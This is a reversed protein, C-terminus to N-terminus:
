TWSWICPRSVCARMGSAAFPQGVHAVRASSSPSPHTSRKQGLPVACVLGVFAAGAGCRALRGLMSARCSAVVSIVNPSSAPKGRCVSHSLVVGVSDTNILECSFAQSVAIDPFVGRSSMRKICCKLLGEAQLDHALIFTRVVLDGKPFIRKMQAQATNAQEQVAAVQADFTRLVADTADVQPLATLHCYSPGSVRTHQPCVCWSAMLSSTSTAWM